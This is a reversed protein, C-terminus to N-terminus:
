VMEAKLAAEMFPTLDGDLVATVNGTEHNTRHDKVLQYPHLVYSRIQYGWGIDGKEDYRSAADEQRRDEQLRLLKAMLMQM